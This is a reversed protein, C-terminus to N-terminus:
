VVLNCGASTQTNECHAERGRALEQCLQDAASGTSYSANSDTEAVVYTCVCYLWMLHLYQM